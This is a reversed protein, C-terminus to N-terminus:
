VGLAAVVSLEVLVSGKLRAGVTTRAPYPSDFFSGYAADFGAWDRQLKALYATCTVVDTLECGRAALVAIVNRLTQGTQDEISKGVVARTAPDYPGVGALFLLGNAVIAQSYHGSPKPSTSVYVDRNTM